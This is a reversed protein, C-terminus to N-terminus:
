PELGLNENTVGNPHRPCLRSDPKDLYEQTTSPQLLSEWITARRIELAPRDPLSLSVTPEIAKSGSPKAIVLHLNTLNDTWM